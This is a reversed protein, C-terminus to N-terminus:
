RYTDPSLGEREQEEAAAAAAAAAASSGADDDCPKSLWCDVDTHRGFAAHCLPLWLKFDDDVADRLAKCSCAFNIIDRHGLRLLIAAFVDGPFTFAAEAEAAAALAASISM